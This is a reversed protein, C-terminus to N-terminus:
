TEGQIKDKYKESHIDIQKYKWTYTRQHIKIKIDKRLHKEAHKKKHDKTYTMRQIDRLM